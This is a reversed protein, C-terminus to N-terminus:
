FNQKRVCVVEWFTEFFIGRRFPDAYMAIPVIYCDSKDVTGTKFFSM